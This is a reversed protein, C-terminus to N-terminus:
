SSAPTSLGISRRQILEIVFAAIRSPKSRSRGPVSIRL